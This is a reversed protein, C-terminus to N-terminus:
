RPVMFRALDSPADVDEFIGDTAVNVEIARAAHRAILPKAGHDGDLAMMETFYSAGWLVPNGQRGHRVPVCIADRGSAEFATMLAKLVGVEVRPMDGLCILTGDCGEPLACLGTRLSTSLGDAYSPNHVIRVELGRLADAVREAEYGTVVIVPRAGNALAMTAISRVMPEGDITQLLKNHPAMRSSRGAALVIAAIMVGTQDTGHEASM